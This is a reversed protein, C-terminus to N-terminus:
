TAPQAKEPLLFLAAFAALSLASSVILVRSGMADILFGFALPAAAQTMRAAAGIIGLRYAYNEPGFIALPLTGRSITIVGNGAGHCIAFVSAAAGGSLAVIAAGIPHMLCALKTSLLPHYRKLVSAEVIRAAVQAPGVLAGASIAQLTTAGAAELIRPLQAAMAGTVIWATAFIFSLLMMTRDLPINPKVASEAAAKASTVAPLMLLNLPLGILIHAAAWALCTDRWGITALGLATLPWGITSAFGAILTIGTIPGRAAEGYIRGLAGFAADYLGYGMGIGLVLWAAILLPISQAFGLLVLGVALTLNSLSLVPRGGLRDIQRGVRPGLVAAVALAASYAGFIWNASVGLDHAIPDALIAPLYVSSAWALTQTTGLALIVPLQRGSM